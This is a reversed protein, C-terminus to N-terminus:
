VGKQGNGMGGNETFHFDDALPPNWPIENKAKSNTARNPV